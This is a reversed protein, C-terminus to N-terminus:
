SMLAGEVARRASVVGWGQREVEIEPVREATEILIRKIQPPALRPNAELM